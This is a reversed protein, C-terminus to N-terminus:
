KELNLSDDEINFNVKKYNISKLIKKTSKNFVVWKTGDESKRYEPSDYKKENNKYWEVTKIAEDESNCLKSMNSEHIIKFADDLNVGISTGMGYVVYLIDGLADVIEKFDNNDVADKLEEVEENILSLRYKILDPDEKTINKQLCKFVPIGFSKNFNIVKLFNTENM